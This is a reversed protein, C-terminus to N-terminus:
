RRKYRGMLEGQALVHGELALMLQEKTAGPELDLHTDLAYLRFFYRQTFPPCPGVYGLWRESNTGHMGGAALEADPPVAQPLSRTEAPLNFLLWHVTAKGVVSKADPNDVVLVFSQTGKPPDDWALPPSIDEGDCTYPEPIMEESGFATSSLEISPIPTDTPPIPTGTPPATSCGALMLLAVSASLHLWAGKM